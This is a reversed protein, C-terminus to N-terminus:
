PTSSFHQTVLKHKTVIGYTFKSRNPYLLKNADIRQAKLKYLQKHIAATINKKNPLSMNKLYPAAPITKGTDRIVILKASVTQMTIALLMGILIKLKM